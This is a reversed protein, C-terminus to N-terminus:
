KQCLTARLRGVGMCTAQILSEFFIAPSLKSAGAFRPAFTIPTETIRGSAQSSRYTMESQFFYGKVQMNELNLGCLHALKWVRFGGTIDRVKLGLMVRIYENGLRSLALRARSWQPCSGGPVYRSGIVLDADTQEACALLRTLDEAQHSGDADMQVVHTYRPRGTSDRQALAWLFGAQYARALGGKGPRSLLHLWPKEGESARSLERVIEGTGDPSSDDIVLVDAEPVAEHVRSVTTRITQVENYTPIAILVRM